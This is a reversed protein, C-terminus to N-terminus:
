YDFEEYNIGYEECFGRICDEMAQAQEISTYRNDTLEFKEGDYWCTLNNDNLESTIERAMETLQIDSYMRYIFDNDWCLFLLADKTESCFDTYNKITYILNDKLYAAYCLDFLEENNECKYSIINENSDYMFIKQNDDYETYIDFFDNTSNHCCLEGINNLLFDLHHALADDDLGSQNRNEWISQMEKYENLLKNFKNFLNQYYNFQKM